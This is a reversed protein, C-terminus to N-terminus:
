LYGLSQRKGLCRLCYEPEFPISEAKALRLFVGLRESEYSHIRVTIFAVLYSGWVIHPLLGLLDPVKKFFTDHSVYSV